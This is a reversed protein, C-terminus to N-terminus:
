RAFFLVVVFCVAAFAAYEIAVSLRLRGQAHADMLGVALYTLLTLALAAPLPPLPWYHLAWAVEAAVAGAALAHQWRAPPDFRLRLLRWALITAGIAVSPIAFVARTERGLIGTLGLTLVVFGMARLGLAATEARPDDPDVVLFEGVLVAVLVAAAIPLGIWLATGKPFSTLVLGLALTALGPLILHDVRRGQTPFRPHSRVLWDSGTITVASALTLLVTESSLRLSVVLGLIELRAALEPLTVVRVLTVALLLLAALASLRDRDPQPLEATM